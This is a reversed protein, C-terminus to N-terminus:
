GDAEPTVLYGIRTPFDASDASQDTVDSVAVFGRFEKTLGDTQLIFDQVQDREM